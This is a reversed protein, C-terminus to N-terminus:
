GEVIGVMATGFTLTATQAHQLYGSKQPAALAFWKHPYPIVFIRIPFAYDIVIVGRLTLNSSEGPIALPMIHLCELSALHIRMALQVHM